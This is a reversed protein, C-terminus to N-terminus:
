GVCLEFDITIKYSTSDVQLRSKMCIRSDVEVESGVFDVFIVLTLYSIEILILYLRYWVNWWGFEYNGLLRKIFDCKIEIKISGKIDVWYLGNSIFNFKWYLKNSYQIVLWVACFAWLVCYKHLKIKWENAILVKGNDWNSV